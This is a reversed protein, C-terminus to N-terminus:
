YEMTHIHIVDEKNMEDTSPYKCQKWTKSNYITSCLVNPHTYRELNHNEEWRIMTYSGKLTNSSKPKSFKNLFKADMNILSIPRYNEKKHYSKNEYCPTETQLLWSTKIYWDIYICLITELQQEIWKLHMELIRCYELIQVTRVTAPNSIM